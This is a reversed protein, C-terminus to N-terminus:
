RITDLEMSTMIQGKVASLITWFKQTKRCTKIKFTNKLTVIDVELNGIIMDKEELREKLAEEIIEDEEVQIKLKTIV